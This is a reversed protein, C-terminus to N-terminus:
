KSAAILAKGLAGLISKVITAPDVYGNSPAPERDAELAADLGEEDVEGYMGEPQEEEVAEQQALIAAILDAKGKGIAKVDLGQGKAMATLEPVTMKKLDAETFQATEEVPEEEDEALTGTQEEEVEEGGAEAFSVKTMQGNLLKTTFGASVAAEVLAMLEADEEVDDDVDVFLALLEVGDAEFEQMLAILSETDADRQEAAGAIKSGISDFYVEKAKIWDLIIKTTAKDGPKVAFWFEQETEVAKNMLDALSGEIETKNGTGDGAIVYLV